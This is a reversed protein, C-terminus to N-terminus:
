RGREFHIGGGKFASLSYTFSMLFYRGLSNVREEQIYNAASSQDVGINQNLLDFAILKLEGRDGKLLFRSLEARWLTRNPQTSFDESSYVLRDLSSKILWKKGLNVSLDLFHDFNTFGQDFLDSESYSTNNLQVKSGVVLDFHDKNRNEVKATVSHDLRNAINEVNNLYVFGENYTVRHRINYKVKLPKIPRGFSWSGTLLLDYDTNIPQSYQVLNEDISSATVINNKTYVASLFAFFNTFSFQDFWIFNLNAEHTYEANLDPNGQYISLPNNNSVTPQLQQLSPESLRTRYSFDLNKGNGFEYGFRGTPLFKNFNKQVTISESTIDGILESTQYNIGVSVSVKEKNFNYSSGFVDYVYDKTFTRSLASNYIRENSIVDYYDSTVENRYNSHKIQFDLYDHKGLPETYGVQGLYSLVNNDSLQDQVLTTRITSDPYFVESIASLNNDNSTRGFTTELSGTITRGAQNFKKRYSGSLNISYDDGFTESNSVSQNQDVGDRSTLDRNAVLYKRDLLGANTNFTIDQTPDIKYKLRASLNHNFNRNDQNSNSQSAYQSGDELFNTRNTERIIEAVTSSFIYNSRLEMKKGFDRNFNLGTATSTIVGDQGSNGISVGNPVELSFSGGGSSFGGGGSFSLYDNITFGVQNINNYNGIYSLQSKSNFRNINAKAQFRNDTGYAGTIKGFTGDKKDEKLALNITKQENGDDIGSFEAFESKKDFVQVKDIADAPLNKTAMKPDNGFFEKGDVLVKQVNEGQAKVTGDRQVEVGPLRKLLDEVSANPNTKFANADYEITDKKLTIPIRESGIVVESLMQDKPQMDLPELVYPIPTEDSIALQSTYPEYGIFSGMLIYNGKPAKELKFNGEADTVGFAVMISDSQNQLTVTAGVLGEGNEDLLKGQIEVRQSLAPMSIGILLLGWLFHRM